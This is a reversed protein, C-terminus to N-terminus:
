TWLHPNNDDFDIEKIGRPHLYDANKIYNIYLTDSKKTSDSNQVKEAPDCVKHAVTNYKQIAACDLM